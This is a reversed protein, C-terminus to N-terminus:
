GVCWGQTGPASSGTPLAPLPTSRAREVEEAAQFASVEHPGPAGQEVDTAATEVAVIRQKSGDEEIRCLKGTLIDFSLTRTDDLRVLFYYDNTGRVQKCGEARYEARKSSVDFGSEFASVDWRMKAGLKVLDATTFSQLHQEGLYFSFEVQKEPPLGEDQRVRMVAVKGAKPSWGLVLGNRNYWSYTTIVEDGATRVCVIQTTGKSGRKEHPLCRAYFPSLEEFAIVYPGNGLGKVAASSGVAILLLTVIAISARM